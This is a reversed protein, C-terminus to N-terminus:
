QPVAHQEHRFLMDAMQWNDIITYERADQAHTIHHVSNDGILFGRDFFKFFIDGTGAVPRLPDRPCWRITDIRLAPFPQPYAHDKRLKANRPTCTVALAMGIKSAPGEKAASGGVAITIITAILMVPVVAPEMKESHRHVAEIINEAGHGEADPTFIKM